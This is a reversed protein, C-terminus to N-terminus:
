RSRTPCIVSEVVPNIQRDVPHGGKRNSIALVDDRPNVAHRAIHILVDLMMFSAIAAPPRLRLNNRYPSRATSPAPPVPHRSSEAVPTEESSAPSYKRFRLPLPQPFLRRVSERVIKTGAHRLSSAYMCVVYAAWPAAPYQCRYDQRPFPPKRSGSGAISSSAVRRRLLNM